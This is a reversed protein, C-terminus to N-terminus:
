MTKETSEAKKGYLRLAFLTGAEVLQESPSNGEAFVQLQKLEKENLKNLAAIM